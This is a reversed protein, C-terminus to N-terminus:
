LLSTILQVDQKTMEPRVPLLMLAWSLHSSTEGTRQRYMPLSSLPQFAPRMGLDPRITSAWTDYFWVAHRPTMKTRNPLLDDYWAEVQRRYEANRPYQRLSELALTAQANPMRYNFGIRPHYYDHDSTFAMNKLMRVREAIGRDHTTVMGGEEAAIIKNRYFSYCTVDARSDYVAGQAECADEIIPLGFKKFSSIDQVRGYVHVVMIAKTKPTVLRDVEDVRLGYTDAHVDGFVPVAGTYSVAFACAAMTFDPVIVEDGPGVGLALLALHLASTGSNCSVSYPSGTFDCWARELNKYPESTGVVAM